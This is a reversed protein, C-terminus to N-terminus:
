PFIFIFEFIPIRRPRHNAPAHQFVTTEHGFRYEIQTLFLWAYGIPSDPLDLVKENTEPDSCFGAAPESLESSNNELGCWIM